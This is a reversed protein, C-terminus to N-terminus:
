IYIYKYLYDWMLTQEYNTKVFMRGLNGHNNRLSPDNRYQCIKNSIDEPTLDVFMGTENEVISDICGTKKTTLVPLRMASAELVVTPFGERYSPLIFVDMLKYFPASDFIFGTLIISSNCNIEDLLNTEITDREDVPGVLILKINDYKLNLLKWAEYLEIIGKDKSLRGVYGVVFDNTSINFRNKLDKVLDKSYYSPNFKVKTDIGNFSGKNIMVMKNPRTINDSISKDLISKSVCIIKTSFFSVTKEVLMFIKLRFGLTTEYFLGHRVYINKEIGSFYAAITGILAGKPSHSVVINFNNKKIYIILKVISLIDSLPSISRNIKLPYSIFGWKRSYAIFTESPSCAIHIEARATDKFYKLQDGLFYPIAFPVHVVHLIKM